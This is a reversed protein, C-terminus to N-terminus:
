IKPVVGLTAGNVLSVIGRLVIFKLWSVTQTLNWPPHISIIEKRISTGYIHYLYDWSFDCPLSVPSEEVKIRM